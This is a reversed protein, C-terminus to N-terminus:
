VPSRSFTLHETPQTSRCTGLFYNIKTFRNTCVEVVANSDSWCRSTCYVVSGVANSM